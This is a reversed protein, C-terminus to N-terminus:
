LFSFSLPIYTRKKLFHFSFHSGYDKINTCVHIHSTFRFSWRSALYKAKNTAPLHMMASLWFMSLFPVVFRVLIQAANATDDLIATADSTASELAAALRGGVSDAGSVSAM